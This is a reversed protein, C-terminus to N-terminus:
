MVVIFRVEEEETRRKQVAIAELKASKATVFRLLEEVDPDFDIRQSVTCYFNLLSAVCCLICHVGYRHPLCIMLVKQGNAWSDTPRAVVDVTCM